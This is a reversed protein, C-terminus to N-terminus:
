GDWGGGDDCTPWPRSACELNRDRTFGLDADREIKKLRGRSAPKRRSPRTLHSDSGATQFRELASAPTMLPQDIPPGPASPALLRVAAGAAGSSGTGSTPERRSRELYAIAARLRDTDDDYNGLGVNCKSCLLGRVKHSSHCHDVGLRRKSKKGCIACVGGQLALLADYDLLSMGYRRKLHDGPRARRRANLKERHAARYARDCAAKRKRYEPDAYRRRKRITSRSVM